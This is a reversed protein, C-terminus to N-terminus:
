KCEPCEAMAMFKAADFSKFTGILEYGQDAQLRTLYSSDKSSKSLVLLTILDPTEKRLVFYFEGGASDNEYRCTCSKAEAVSSHPALVPMAFAFLSATLLSLIATLTRKM